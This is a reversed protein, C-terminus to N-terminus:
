AVLGVVMVILAPCVAVKVDCTLGAPLKTPGTARLQVPAGAVVVQETEALETVNWPAVLSEKVTMTVVVALPDSKGTMSLAGKDGRLWKAGARPTQKKANSNPIKLERRWSESFHPAKAATKLKTKIEEAHPPPEPDPDPPCGGGVM